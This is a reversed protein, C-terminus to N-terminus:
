KEGRGKGYRLCQTVRIYLYPTLSFAQGYWIVLGYGIIGEAVTKGICPKESRSLGCIADRFIRANM